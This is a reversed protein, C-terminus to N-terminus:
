WPTVPRGRLPLVPSHMRSRSRMAQRYASRTRPTASSTQARSAPWGTHGRDVRVDFLDSLGAAALVAAANNSSSVLATRVGSARLRDILAVTSKFVEVGNRQLRETFFGDKRNGLGCITDRDAPDDPSGEPLDIGRSQLFSRVGDYRPKGDVYLRYDAEADFPVFPEGVRESRQQLFEDFLRKWAAAHVTATRTVVGDLDFVAAAFELIPTDIGKHTSM